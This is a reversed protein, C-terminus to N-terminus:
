RGNRFHRNRAEKNFLDSVQINAGNPKEDDQRTTKPADSGPLQMALDLNMAKWKTNDESLKTIADDKEAIIGTQIEIKAERTSVERLHLERMDRAIALPDLDSKGDLGNIYDEIPNGM